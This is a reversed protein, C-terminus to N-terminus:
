EFAKAIKGKNKNPKLKMETFNWTNLNRTFYFTGRYPGVRNFGTRTDFNIAAEKERIKFKIVTLYVGVGFYFLSVESTYIITLDSFETEKFFQSKNPTISEAKVFIVDENRTKEKVIIDRLHGKSLQMANSVLSLTDFDEQANCHFNGIMMILSFFEIKIRTGM